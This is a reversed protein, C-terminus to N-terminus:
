VRAEPKRLRWKVLCHIFGIEFQMENAATYFPLTAGLTVGIFGAFDM